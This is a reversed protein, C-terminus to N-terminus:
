DFSRITKGRFPPYRATAGKRRVFPAALIDNGGTLMEEHGVSQGATGVKAAL